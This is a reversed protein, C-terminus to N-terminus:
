PQFADPFHEIRSVQDRDDLYVSVIDFRHPSPERYRGLYFRATAILRGQKEGDVATEPAFEARPSRTKVEAFVITGGQEAIIDMEGAKCRFNRELIRCGLKQLHRQAANEGLAGIARNLTKRPPTGTSM